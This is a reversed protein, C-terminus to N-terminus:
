ADRPQAQRRMVIISLVAAFVGIVATYAFFAMYGAGLAGPTVGSRELAAAFNEPAQAAVLSKLGSLAGGADAQRAAYAM